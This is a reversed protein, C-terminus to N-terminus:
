IYLDYYKNCIDIDTGSLIDIEKILVSEQQILEDTIKKIEARINDALESISKLEDLLSKNKDLCKRM